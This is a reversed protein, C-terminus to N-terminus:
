IGVLFRESLRRCSRSSVSVGKVKGGQKGGGEKRVWKCVLKCGCFCSVCFGLSGVGLSSRCRFGKPLCHVSKDYCYQVLLRDVACEELSLPGVLRNTTSGGDLM